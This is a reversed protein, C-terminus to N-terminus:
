EKLRAAISSSALYMVVLPAYYKTDAYVQKPKNRPRRNTGKIRINKLLLPLRRRSKHENGPGLDIGVAPLSQPM